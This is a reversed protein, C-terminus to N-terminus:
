YSFIKSRITFCSSPFYMGNFGVRGGWIAAMKQDNAWLSSGMLGRAAPLLRYDFVVCLTFFRFCSRGGM